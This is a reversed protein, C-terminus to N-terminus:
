LTRFEEGMSVVIEKYGIETTLNIENGELTFLRRAPWPFELKATAQELLDLYSVVSVVATVAQTCSELGDNKFVRM